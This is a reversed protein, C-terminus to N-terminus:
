GGALGALAQRLGRELNERGIKELKGAKRLMSLPQPQLGAVIFRTGRAACRERIDKLVKLGTADMYFVGEMDLVFARPAPFLAREVEVLREASGLSLAGEPAYVEVGAPAEPRPGPERVPKGKGHFARNRAHVALALALGAGVAVSLNVFLTLFFTLGLVAADAWPGRLIFRCSHWEAMHWCVPVLVGALAALPIRAAWPGATLLILLLVLAHVMGAVPTRGGNRVNTATRAIAGTAPMGGFVPSLFNAAGQAVLELNSKHRGGIMGDAVVACLLSEVAGLAAVTAAAPLLVLAQHADPFHFQPHPLGRPIGGFRSGITELPWHGWAAASASVALAAISGPVKWGRPWLFIAAATFLGTGLAYPNWGPLSRLCDGWQALFGERPGPPLGLLDRVQTSFIVVAIGTTFGTVVPYPMYKVWTGVRALGLLALLIGALFTAQALGEYGYRATIGAVVVIFAGTPGGIAVRSGSLASILFGAVVATYIGREPPLGSAIAFAMALPLAVLGVVAGAASDDRFQKWSYGRLCVISK